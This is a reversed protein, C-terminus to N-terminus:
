TPEPARGRAARESSLGDSGFRLANTLSTLIKKGGLILLAWGMLGEQRWKLPEGVDRGGYERISRGMRWPFDDGM